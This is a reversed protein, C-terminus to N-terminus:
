LYCDLENTTFYGGTGNCYDCVITNDESEEFDKIIIGKGLCNPCKHASTTNDQLFKSIDRLKLNNIHHDIDEDGCDIIRGLIATIISYANTLNQFDIYTM